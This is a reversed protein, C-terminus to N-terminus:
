NKLIYLDCFTAEVAENVTPREGSSEVIESRM